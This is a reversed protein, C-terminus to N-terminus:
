EETETIKDILGELSMGRMLKNVVDSVSESGSALAYPSLSTAVERLTESKAASQIAAVLDPSISDILKKVADTHNKEKEIEIKDSEKRLNLDQTKKEKEAALNIKSIAAKLTELEKQAEKEAKSSAEELRRYEDKKKLEELQAKAYLELEYMKNQHKLSIEEKEIKALETAVSIEKNAASLQLTKSVIEEQHKNMLRKINEDIIEVSLIEVDSVYMGNSFTVPKKNKLDEKLVIGSIIDASDNYFQELTIKKTEKKIISRISDKLYEKYDENTFWKDKQSLDFNINYSLKVNVNVFDKTQINITDCIRDNEIHLFVSNNVVELVEDYDLLVTKPGVEVRRSGDKGIVNVAYGTWVDISVIGDFKNDITITRPKSYTNGRNFGANKYTEVNAQGLFGNALSDAATTSLSDLCCTNIAANSVSLTIDRNNSFVKIGDTNMEFKPLEVENYQLVEKNGPYWLECEKKTLKRRVIVEYRPDPLFMKPGFVTKVRGTLRELVYRGEGEPIAIAHHIIKGEYSIIALNENPYFIKTDNGTIFLEEGVEHHVVKVLINKEDSYSEEDVEGDVEVLETIEEYDEPEKITEDFSKLVKCYIGSIPSLEIARFKPSNTEENNIFVEDPEPFVVAPGKVYKKEGAENLLIAYELRELSVANRVYEGSETPIIEIGSPPIYFSVTDGKIILHQGVSYKKNLAEADYVRALLYQNSHLTHGQIVKAMQVPYLAFSCPGPINIKKGVDLDPTVNSTGIKPHENSKANNKLSVYWGEPAIIFNTIAKSAPVEEFKKTEENFIVLADSSSTSTKFPGTICSIAGKTRDLLFCFESPKLILDNERTSESM